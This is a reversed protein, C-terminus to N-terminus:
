KFTASIMNKVTDEDYNNMWRTFLKTLAAKADIENVMATVRRRRQEDKIKKQLLRGPWDNLDLDNTLTILESESLEELNDPACRGSITGTTSAVM